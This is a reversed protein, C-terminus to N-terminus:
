AWNWSPKRGFTRSEPASMLLNVKNYENGVETDKNQDYSLSIYMANREGGAQISLNHQQSFTNRYFNDEIQKQNNFMGITDVKAYAQEM